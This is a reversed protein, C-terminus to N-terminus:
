KQSSKMDKITNLSLLMAEITDKGKDEQAGVIGSRAIAQDLNDCTLVGFGVVGGKLSLAVAGQTVAQSLYEFHPTEGRIVAGFMAVAAFGEALARDAVSILEFAGAVRFVQYEVKHGQLTAKASAVMADCIDRNWLAAVIAVKIGTFDGNFKIAPMGIKAM